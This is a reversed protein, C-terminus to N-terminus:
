ILLTMCQETLRVWQLYVKNKLSECIADLVARHHGFVILKRGGELLDLTYDRYICSYPIASDHQVSSQVYM